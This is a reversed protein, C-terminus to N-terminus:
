LHPFCVPFSGILRAERIRVELNVSPRSKSPSHFHGSGERTLLTTSTSSLALSIDSFDTNPSDPYPLNPKADGSHMSPLMEPVLSLSLSM